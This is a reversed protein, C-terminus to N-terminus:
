EYSHLKNLILGFAQGHLECSSIKDVFYYVIALPRGQDLGKDIVYM